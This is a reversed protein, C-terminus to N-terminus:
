RKKIEINGNTTEITIPDGGGNIEGKGVLVKEIDRGWKGGNENTITLPFDCYINYEERANRTIKLVVEFTAPMNAPIALSVSGGATKMSVHHDKSFDLLTIEGALDGGATKADIFGRVDNLDIDGGATSVNIGGDVGDSEIDGGATKATVPGGIKLLEIDGGATSATVSGTSNEVMIDGGSTAAQVEGGVNVIEIDGGSTKVTVSGDSDRLVIDGGSTSAEVEGGIQSLIIDGGSTSLSAKKEINAVSIDGGSTKAELLGDVTDADIDGGSTKLVVDGKITAVAIDGGATSMKVAGSVGRASVDGGATGVELNFVAPVKVEFSSQMWGRHFEAGDVTVTNGSQTYGAKTRAVAEEAEKETFVDMRRKELVYVEDNSWTQVTVDGAIEKMVLTGGKSVKFSNEIDAVWYRGEKRLKQAYSSAASMMVVAIMIGAMSVRMIKRM